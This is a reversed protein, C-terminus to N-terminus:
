QKVVAERHLINGSAGQIVLWYVGPILDSISMQAENQWYISTRSLLQGNANTLLISVPTNKPVDLQTITITGATPNPFVKVKDNLSTVDKVGTKDLYSGYFYFTFFSPKAPFYSFNYEYDKLLVPDKSSNYTMVEMTHPVWTNLLSDFDNIMVTDPLGTGSNIVKSMYYWPAWYGNIPDWQYEKWSNHYTYTGSYAFTDKIYPSLATGDFFSSFVSLLRNSADYTNVYKYQEILPLLFSTDTTNAYNDIQILNNSGDYTYISKSALRWIGLHYEYTSDKTLKNASNYAYFQKFASDAHGSNWNYAYGTDINKAANFKNAYLMNPNFSSDAMLDLYGTMNSNADYTAYATEYYGFWYTNPDITWRMFTDFLVQPKGFIGGNNNFVPSTNYPYNYAYIMTNYDYKSTRYLSYGLKVSDFLNQMTSDRTSQAIVREGPIGGTSKMAANTGNNQQLLCNLIRNHEPRRISLNGAQQAFATNICLLAVIVM